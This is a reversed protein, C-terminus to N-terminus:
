SIIKVDICEDGEMDLDRLTESGTISDGDFEFKLKRLPLELHEACKALALTLKDDQEIYVEFPRKSKSYQFKIKIGTCNKKLTKTTTTVNNYVIGGDIFKAINYDICDPTHDPKLIIDNYTFLLKDISVNEKKAFHEFIQTLKQFKRIKFKYIDISQWYVKVSLEENEEVITDDLVVEITNQKSSFLAVDELADPYEETNGISYIPIQSGPSPLHNNRGRGTSSNGRRGKGRSRGTGQSRPSSRNVGRKGSSRTKRATQTITTTENIIEELSSDSIESSEFQKSKRARKSPRGKHKTKNQTKQRVSSIDPEVNSVPINIPKDIIERLFSDDLSSKNTEALNADKPDEIQFNRRIKDLRKGINGYIDDSDSSSM